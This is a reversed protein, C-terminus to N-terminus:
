RVTPDSPTAQVDDEWSWGTDQVMWRLQGRLKGGRSVRALFEAHDRLRLDSGVVTELPPPDPAAPEETVFWPELSTLLRGTGCRFKEAALELSPDADVTGDCVVHLAENLVALSPAIANDRERSQFYHLVPYALHREKLLLLHEPFSSIEQKVEDGGLSALKRVVEQISRGMLSIRGALARKEVVASLLPVLYTISLTVIMLGGASAVVTLIRWGGVPQYDGNGLTFITYGAFYIKGVLDAPAGTDSSVVSREFAAFVLSWGLWSFLVWVSVITLLILVGAVQLLRPARLAARWLYSALRLTLPGGRQGLRLATQIIDYAVAVVFLVGLLLVVYSM